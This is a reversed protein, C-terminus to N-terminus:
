SNGVARKSGLAMELRGFTAELAQIVEPAAQQLHDVSQFARQHGAEIKEPVQCKMTGIYWEWMSFVRMFDENADAEIRSERIQDILDDVDLAELAEREPQQEAKIREKTADEYAQLHRELEGYEDTPRQDEPMSRLHTLRNQDEAVTSWEEVEALERIATLHHKFYSQGLIDEVLVAKGNEDSNGLRRLNDMEAELIEYVDSAPDRLQRTRRAKAALAKERISSDQFQNPLRCWAHFHLPNGCSGNTSDECVDAGPGVHVWESFQFMDTLGRGEAPSTEPVTAAPEDPPPTHTEPTTTAAEM